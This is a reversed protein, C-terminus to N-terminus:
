PKELLWTHIHSNSWLSLQPNFLQYKQVTTNFFVRSLGNSQLSTWDTWGLPFWDQNNMPLVSSSSASIGISQGSSAFFQSRPFSVSAPVLQLCSSFPVVSSTINLHYWSEISTLKLLSWSNSISLTTQRAATWPTLFLQIHSLSQVSSFILCLTMLSTVLLHFLHM